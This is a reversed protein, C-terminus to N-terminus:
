CSRSERMPLSPTSRAPTRAQARLFQKWSLGSHRPAPDIGAATLIEWVTSSAIRHGSKLLEGAIRRHGWLPNDRAMGVILAKVVARTRHRGPAGRALTYKRAVLRRHWALLTGPTVPFVVSGLL